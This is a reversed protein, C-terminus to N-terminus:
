YTEPTKVLVRKKYTIKEDFNQHIKDNNNNYERNVTLEDDIRKYDYKIKEEELSKELESIKSKIEKVEKQRLTLAKKCKIYARIDSLPMSVSVISMFTCLAYCLIKEPSSPIERTIRIMFLVLFFIVIGQLIKGMQVKKSLFNTLQLIRNECQSLYDNMEDLDNEKQIISEITIDSNNSISVFNIKGEEDTVICNNENLGIFEKNM